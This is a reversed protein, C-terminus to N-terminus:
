FVLNATGDAAEQTTTPAAPPVAGCAGLAAADFWRQRQPLASAQLQLWVGGMELQLSREVGAPLPMAALRAALVAAAADCDAQPAIGAQLEATAELLAQDLALLQTGRQQLTAAAVTSLGWLRLSCSSACALVIAAALVEALTM